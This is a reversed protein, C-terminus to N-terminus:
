EVGLLKHTQVSIKWNPHTIVYEVAEKSHENIFENWVPQLYRTVAEFKEFGEPTVGDIAKPFLLKLDHARKLKTESLAQKPSMTVHDFLHFIDSIDKSGNTELHIDYCSAKLELLLDKDVQLTPEGGSIVVTRVPGLANLQEAIQQATLRDGGVFDTDCFWCAAKAQDEKKGSWRNCGTFRLFKVARGAHTGEGQITPGFIKKVMYTKM